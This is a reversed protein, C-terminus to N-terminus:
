SARRRHAARLPELETQAELMPLLERDIFLLAYVAILTAAQEGYQCKAQETRRHIAALARDRQSPYLAGQRADPALM